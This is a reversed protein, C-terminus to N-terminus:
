VLVWSTIVAVGGPGNLRVRIAGRPVGTVTFWGDAGIPASHREGATEVVAQGGTGTVLGRLDVLDRAHEVQLELSVTPTEFSLLRPEDDEARVVGSDVLESDAVLEALEDDLRRTSLAARAAEVVLPPPPDLRTAADRLLDLLDDDTM